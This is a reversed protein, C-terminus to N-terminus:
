GKLGSILRLLVDGTDEAADSISGLKRVLEELQIVSLPDLKKELETLSATFETELLDSEHELKQIEDVKSVVQNIDVFLLNVAEVLSDVVEKSKGAVKRLAEGVQKARKGLKQLLDERLLMCKSTEEIADAVKDMREALEVLDGRIAPLFAGDYLKQIFKRRAEDAQSELGAIKKGLAEARGLDREIFVLEFFEECSAGMESIKSCAERLIGVAERERGGRIKM